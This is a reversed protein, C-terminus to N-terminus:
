AVRATPITFSATEHYLRSPTELRCPRAQIRPLRSAARVEQLGQVRLEKCAGGGLFRLGKLYCYEILGGTPNVTSHNPKHAYATDM